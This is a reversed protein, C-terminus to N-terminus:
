EDDDFNTSQRLGYDSPRKFKAVQDLTSTLEPSVEPTFTKASVNSSPATVKKLRSFQDQLQNAQLSRALTDPHSVPLNPKIHASSPVLIAPPPSPAVPVPPAEPAPPPTVMVTRPARPTRKTKRPRLSNDPPLPAVPPPPESPEQISLDEHPPSAPPLIPISRLSRDLEDNIPRFKGLTQAKAGVKPKPALVPPPKKKRPIEEVEQPPPPPPPPYDHVYQPTDVGIIPISEFEQHYTLANRGFGRPRRALLQAPPSIHGVAPLPTFTRRPVNRPVRQPSPFPAPHKVGTEVDGPLTQDDEGFDKQLELFAESRTMKTEEIQQEPEPENMSSSTSSHARSSGISAMSAKSLAPSISGGRSRVGRPRRELLHSPPQITNPNIRPIVPLSRQLKVKSSGSTNSSLNSVVSEGKTRTVPVTDEVTRPSGSSKSGASIKPASKLEHDQKSGVSRAPSSRNLTASQKPLAMTMALMTEARIREVSAPVSDIAIRSQSTDRQFDFDFNEDVEVELNTFVSAVSDRNVASGIISGRNESASIRPKEEQIMGSQVSETKSNVAAISSSDADANLPNFMQAGEKLARQMEALEKANKTPLTRNKPMSEVSPPPEAYEVEPVLSERTLLSSIIEGQTRFKEQSQALNAPPNVKQMQAYMDNANKLESFANHSQGSFNTTMSSQKTLSDSKIDYVATPTFNVAGELRVKHINFQKASAADKLIGPPPNNLLHQPIPPPTFDPESESGRSHTSPEDNNESNSTNAPPPPPPAVVSVSTKGRNSPILSASIMEFKPLRIPAPALAPFDKHTLGRGKRAEYGGSGSVATTSLRQGKQVADYKGSGSVATSSIRQGSKADYKGSGKLMASEYKGSGNLVITSLLDRPNSRKGQDLYEGSGNLVVTSYQDRPDIQTGRNSHEGSGNQVVISSQDRTGQDSYNGSHSPVDNSDDYQDEDAAAEEMLPDVEKLDSVSGTVVSQNGYSFGTDEQDEELPPPPLPLSSSEDYELPSPSPQSYSYSPEPEPPEEEPEPFENLAPLNDVDDWTMGPPVSLTIRGTKMNKFMPADDSVQIRIWMGRDDDDDKDSIAAKKLRKPLQQTETFDYDEPPLSGPGFDEEEDMM